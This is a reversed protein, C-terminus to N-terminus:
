NDALTAAGVVSSASIRRLPRCEYIVFDGGYEQAEEAAVGVVLDLSHGSVKGDSDIESILGDARDIPVALFFSKDPSICNKM